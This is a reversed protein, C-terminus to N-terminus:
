SLTKKWDGYKKKAEERSLGYTKQIEGELRDLNGEASNIQDDTLKSWAQKIKGKMVKWDGQMTDKNM